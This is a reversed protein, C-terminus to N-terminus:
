QILKHNNQRQKDTQRDRQTKRGRKERIEDQIKKSMKWYRKYIKVRIDHQTRNMKHPRCENKKGKYNREEEASM